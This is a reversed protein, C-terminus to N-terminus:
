ASEPNKFLQRLLREGNFTHFIGKVCLGFMMVLYILYLQRATTYTMLPELMSAFFVSGALFTAVSYLAIVGGEGPAGLPTMILILPWVMFAGFLLGVFAWRVIWASTSALAFDFEFGSM